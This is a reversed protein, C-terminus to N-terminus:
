VAVPEVAVIEGTNTRVRRCRDDYLEVMNFDKSCTVPLDVGIHVACWARITRRALAADTYAGVRATVIKVRMGAALWAQVREVMPQIPLGIHDVGRYHDYYALTGDLDVGIWDEALLPLPAEADVDWKWIEYGPEVDRAFLCLVCDKPYLWTPKDPMFPIRGNLLLVLAQGDVHQRFWNAGVAAPVLFAVRGGDRRLEACKAAWPLIHTYPPNLWGWGDGVYRRWGKVSLADRAADFYSDAKHNTVDAAFDHTFVDIQLRRKAARMFADPTAYDQKSRHRKQQPPAM